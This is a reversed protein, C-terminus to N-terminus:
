NNELFFIVDNFCDLWIEKHINFLIIILILALDKILTINLSIIDLQCILDFNYFTVVDSM